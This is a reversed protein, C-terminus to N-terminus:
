WQINYLQTLYDSIGQKIHAEIRAGEALAAESEDMGPYDRFTWTTSDWVVRDIFHITANFGDTTAIVKPVMPGPMGENLFVTIQENLNRIVDFLMM